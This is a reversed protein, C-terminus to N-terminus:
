DDAYRVYHLRKYNPDNFMTYETNMLMNHLRKVSAIDNAKEAKRKQHRIKTYIPSVRPREGVNFENKLSEIYVDLQHLFVNALLPSIISGQPTGILNNERVKFEFYGARLSKWILKTFQRDKIKSEVVEM